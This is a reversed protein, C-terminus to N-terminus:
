VEPVDTIINHVGIEIFMTMRKPDNVTWVHVEKGRQQAARMLDATVLRANVSLFAVDLHSVDGVAHAIIHGVTLGPHLRKAQLLADYILGVGYIVTKLIGLGLLDLLRKLMLWLAQIVVMNQGWLLSAALIMLGAQEIFLVALTTTGSLLLTLLGMPSLFFTLLQTNSISLRGTTSVLATFLWTAFPELLAFGLLKVCLDYALLQPFGHRFDHVIHTFLQTITFTYHRQLM